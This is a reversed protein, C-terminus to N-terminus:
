VVRYMHPGTLLYHRGCLPFESTRRAKSFFDASQTYSQATIETGEGSRGGWVNSVINRRKVANYDLLSFYTFSPEKTM